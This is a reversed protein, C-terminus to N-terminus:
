LGEGCRGGPKMGLGIAEDARIVLPRSIADEASFGEREGSSNKFRGDGGESGLIPGGGAGGIEAAEGRLRELAMEFAAEVGHGREGFNPLLVIACGASCGLM